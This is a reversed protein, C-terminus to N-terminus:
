GGLRKSLGKDDAFSLLGRIGGGALVRQRAAEQEDLRARQEEQRRSQDAQLRMM